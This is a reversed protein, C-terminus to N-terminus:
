GGMEADHDITIDALAALWCQNISRAMIGENQIHVDVLMYMTVIHICTVHRYGRILYMYMYVTYVHLYGGSWNKWAVQISVQRLWEFHDSGTAISNLTLQSRIMSTCICSTCM